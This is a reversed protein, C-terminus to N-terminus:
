LYIYLCGRGPEEKGIVTVYNPIQFYAAKFKVGFTSFILQIGNQVAKPYLKM